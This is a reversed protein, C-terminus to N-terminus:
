VGSGKGNANLWGQWMLVNWIWQHWNRKGSLHEDWKQRVMEVNLFGQEELLKPELLQESWERLPGRLWIELPLTFGQKPRHFFEAPVYKKLIQRLVWKTQGERIKLDQPIQWSFEVIDHDLFPVRTELSVAMAARDVKTLIDDPLYGVQDQFVALDLFNESQNLNCQSQAWNIQCGGDFMIENTERHQSILNYYFEQPNETKIIEAFKHIKDGFANVQYRKPLAFRMSEYFHDILAPSISTLGKGFIRRFGPSFLHMKNWLKEGWIYRNYGSFLEDGGDGSLSVTVSERALKSVLYTPIGSADGFPEDYIEPLNPIVNQADQATVYIETHDTGLFHATNKAYVAEDFKQESFGVSFTKIASSSQAQMLSAIVSSDIGGSLFAGVPVDALMQRSISNKILTELRDVVEDTNVKKQASNACNLVSWYTKVPVEDGPNYQTSVEIFSGPLLKKIGEFISYPTPVYGFRMYEAAAARNIAGDWNQHLKLAKLESAFLFVGGSWGYYVPKEGMRDRAVSLTQRKHDWVAFAFMGSLRRLAGELGWEEIAVLLTETDSNGNWNQHTLECRLEKHNYIEGNFVITYRESTSAMPQKGANSLDLVSLRRHGLAIGSSIWYAGDDPGRHYLSDTMRRINAEASDSDFKGLFGVIGCM